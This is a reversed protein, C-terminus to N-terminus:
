LHDQFYLSIKEMLHIRDKGRVNHEHQPYVFYDLQVNEKISENVFLLSQQWVVTPDVGGHIILLKGKLNKVKNLVSTQTYGQPNEDPMDMYREGYMIEYYKWDTVPGGAVGVKFVDPYNLMLSLTMFGGFSWGYVGIRESDIYSLSKLYEIGKMQDAMEMQGVQRHIVNEFEFGRYSTGRNDLTMSVFGKQAMYFQWMIFSDFWKESVLQSHPGGYVYVIVPYKKTADFDVPKILRGYLDTKGDAAKISFLQYNGLEYDKLPNGATLLNKIDKGAVSKLNIVRPVTSSSYNDVFYLGSPSVSTTHSGSETTLCTKKNTKIEVKYLHREIPSKETSTFYLNQERTDFGIIETVEWNGQTLQKVLAGYTNYLYIHKYGDRNSIWLFQDPSNKLFLMPKLPEVYKDHKEEFLTKVMKGSLIDYQNIKLHNQERNLVAIYVYKEDPSWAINTLFQEKPEGTEFTIKSKTETNYVCLTVEESKMGAMPYKTNKLNAIRQNVDVLPYDTVMTEDKRYYALYSGKPSWFIGKEIGFENRAVTQGNVIGQNEDNTIQIVEGGQRAMFLNNEMTYAIAKAPISINTNQAKVDYLITLDFKRTAVNYLLVRNNSTFLISKDDNWTYDPIASLTNLGSEKLAINLEALNFLIEKEFKPARYIVMNNLKDIYTFNDATTQWCLKDLNEVRLHNSGGLVVDQLSLTKDQAKTQGMTLFFLIVIVIRTKM